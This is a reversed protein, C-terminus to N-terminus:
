TAQLLRSPIPRGWWFGQGYPVGSATLAAVDDEVEVGEAVILVGSQRAAYLVGDIAHRRIPNAAYGAILLRDLKLWKPRLRVFRVLDSHGSGFDDLAFASGSPLRNVFAEAEDIDLEADEPLEWVIRRPDVHGAGTRLDWNGSTMSGTITARAVNLFLTSQKPLRHSDRFALVRLREDLVQAEPDPLCRLVEDVPPGDEFRTLAEYGFVTNSALHIIPQWVTRARELLWCLDM